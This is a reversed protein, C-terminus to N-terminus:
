SLSYYNVGQRQRCFIEGKEVLLDLHAQIESIGLFINWGKLGPYIVRSLQYSNMEGAQLKNKIQRFQTLHHQRGANIVTRYDNFLGGHGPFVLAIDLVEVRDLGQLYQKLAPVRQGPREPDPELLPNPTIHPLLFDGSFFFRQEPDYLCVHGPSHGPLHMVQLSGQDFDLTQNDYLLRTPVGKLTPHLLKDRQGIMKKVMEKPIGSELVFPLRERLHDHEGNLKREEWNHVYVTAGAMAAIEAVLGCHDPHAHTIIIRSINKIGVGLASLMERLVKMAEPTQPGVDILTVPENNILYANIHGVVYPTPIILQYVSLM